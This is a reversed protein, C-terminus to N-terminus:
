PWTGPVIFLPAIALHCMCIGTKWWNQESMRSLRVPWLRGHNEPWDAVWDVSKRFYQYILKAAASHQNYGNRQRVRSDRHNRAASLDKETEATGEAAWLALPGLMVPFLRPHIGGGKAFTNPKDPTATQTVTIVIYGPSDPGFISLPLSWCWTLWSWTLRQITTTFTCM